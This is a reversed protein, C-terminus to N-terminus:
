GNQEQQELWQEFLERREDTNENRQQLMEDRQEMLADRRDLLEDLNDIRDGRDDSPAGLAGWVPGGHGGPLLRGVGVGAAFAIGLTLVGALVIGTIALARPARSRTPAPTPEPAASTSTAATEPADDASRAPEGTTDDHSM